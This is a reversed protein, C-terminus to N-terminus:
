KNRETPKGPIGLNRILDPNGPDFSQAGQGKILELRTKFLSQRKDELEAKNQRIQEDLLPDTGNSQPENDGGLFGM